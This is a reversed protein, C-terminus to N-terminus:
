GTPDSERYFSAIHEPQGIVFAIYSSDEDLGLVATSPYHRFMELQENRCWRRPVLKVVVHASSDDRRFELNCLWRGQEYTYYIAKLYRFDWRRQLEAPVSIGHRELLRAVAEASPHDPLSIPGSLAALDIPRVHFNAHWVLVITAALLVLAALALRMARLRFTSRKELQWRQWIRELLGAPVTVDTMARHFAADWAQERQWWASCAPCQQLHSQLWQLESPPLERAWNRALPHMARLLECLM